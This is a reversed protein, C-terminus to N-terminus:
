DRILWEGIVRGLRAIGDEIQAVTANSFNLRLCHNAQCGPIAFAHGPIFAVEEEAITRELLAVTDVGPPLAVWVFMGGTPETWRAEAPFHQALSALMARRRRGYAERLRSLHGPLHGAQLFAAVARQTLASSELDCAEKAVTLQPALAEPAVIWGLRLAPALIKSFSGVYFVWEENLARLPPPTEGDSLFGYPDDEIIPLGYRQALGVLRERREASLSVGLPNHAEPIAYIFAPRAGTTLWREVVDVDMGEQLDTSVPLIRPGHPALAQQMGTYVVEELLVEGDPNLLLRTLVDLAQQAGTTIFVQQLTCSVGRQAMLAVIQEKLPKYPPGYQLARADDHLVRAMAEAYAEQPFLELAPLGGAFSLIDPRSVVDIMQRLVSREAQEAWQALHYPRQERIPADDTLLM